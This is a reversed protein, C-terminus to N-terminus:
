AEHSGGDVLLATGTLNRADDCLLFAAQWLRDALALLPEDM